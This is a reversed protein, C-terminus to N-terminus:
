SHRTRRSRQLAAPDGPLFATDCIYGCCCLGPWNIDKNDNRDPHVNRSGPPKQIGCRDGHSRLHSRLCHLGRIASGQINKLYCEVNFCGLRWSNKRLTLPVLLTKEHLRFWCSPIWCRQIPGCYPPQQQSDERRLNSRRRLRAPAEELVLTTNVKISLRRRERCSLAVGRGGVRVEEMKRKDEVGPYAVKDSNVSGPQFRLCSRRARRPGSRRRGPPPTPSSVRAAHPKRTHVYVFHFVFHNAFFRFSTSM